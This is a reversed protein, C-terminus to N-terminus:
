PEMRRRRPRNDDTLLGISRLRPQIAIRSVPHANGNAAQRGVFDQIISTDRETVIRNTSRRARRNQIRLQQHRSPIELKATRHCARNMQLCRKPNYEREWQSLTLTLTRLMAGDGRARPGWRPLWAPTTLRGACELRLNNHAGCDFM